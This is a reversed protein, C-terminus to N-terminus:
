REPDPAFGPAAVPEPDPESRPAVPGFVAWAYALLLSAVVMEGGDEAVGTAYRPVPWARVAEHAMDCVVGALGLLGFLAVFVALRRADGQRRRRWAWALLLALIACEAAVVLLEGADQARLFPPAPLSLGEALARGLREHGELADDALLMAFAAALAAPLAGRGRCAAWACLTALAAWKLITWAAALNRETELRWADPVSAILDLFSLASLGVNAGILAADVALLSATARGPPLGTWPGPPVQPIM